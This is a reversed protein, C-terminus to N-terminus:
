AKKIRKLGKGLIETEINEKANDIRAKEIIFGEKEIVLMAKEIKM